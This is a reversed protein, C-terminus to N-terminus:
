KITEKLHGFYSNLVTYALQTMGPFTQESNGAVNLTTIRNELVWKVFCEPRPISVERTRDMHVDFMPKGHKHAFRATMKEGPSAFTVAVRLTGDSNKANLETRVGYYADACEIMGFEEVLWPAAGETTRCGKPLWGGTAFGNDRAALLAARDTGTQGGSMIKFDRIDFEVMRM